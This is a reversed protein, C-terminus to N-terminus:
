MCTCTYEVPGCWACLFHNPYLVSVSWVLHSLRVIAHVHTDLGVPVHVHIYMCTCTCVCAQVKSSNHVNYMYMYM